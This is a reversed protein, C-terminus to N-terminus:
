CALTDAPMRSQAPPPVSAAPGGLLVVRTVRDPVALAFYLSRLGGMSKGLLSAKQINLADLVGQVFQIAHQRFPVNTYDPQGRGSSGSRQM